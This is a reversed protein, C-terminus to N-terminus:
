KPYIPKTKTVSYGLHAALTEFNDDIQKKHYDLLYPNECEAQRICSAALDFAAYHAISPIVNKESM